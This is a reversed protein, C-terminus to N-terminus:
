QRGWRGPRREDRGAAEALTGDPREPTAAQRAGWAQRPPGGSAALPARKARAGKSVGVRAHKIFGEAGATWQSREDAAGVNGFAAALMSRGPAGALAEGGRDVVFQLWDEGTLRAVKGYGFVALAYRRILNQTARAVAAGDADSARIVQLQRLAAKRLARRPDRVARVLLVVSVALLLGLVWWGPAPPWWGPASPAHAPALQTLWDPNM